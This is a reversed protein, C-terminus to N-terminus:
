TNSKVNLSIPTAFVSVLCVAKQATKEIWRRAQSVVLALCLAGFGNLFNRAMRIEHCTQCLDTHTCNHAIHTSIFREAFVSALMVCVMLVIPTLKKSLNKSLFTRMFM